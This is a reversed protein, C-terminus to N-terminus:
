PRPFSLVLRMHGHVAKLPSPPIIEIFRARRVKWDISKIADSLIVGTTALGAPVPV